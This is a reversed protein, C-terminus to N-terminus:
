TCLAAPASFTLNGSFATREIVVENDDYGNDIFIAGGGHSTRRGKPSTAPFSLITFSFIARVRRPLRGAGSGPRTAASILPASSCPIPQGAPLSIAGGREGAQNGSFNSGLISLSRGARIAGGDNGTAINNVFSVGALNLTGNNADIAGATASRGDRVTLNLLTLNGSNGVNFLRTSEDGSLIIPGQITIPTNVNLASGLTITGSVSFTITDHGSGAPCSSNAYFKSDHQRAPRRGAAFM